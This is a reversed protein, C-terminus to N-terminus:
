VATAAAQLLSCQEDQEQELGALRHGRLAQRV